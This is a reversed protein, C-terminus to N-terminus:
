ERNEAHADLAGEGKRRAIKILGRVTEAGTVSALLHRPDPVPSSPTSALVPFTTTFTSEPYKRGASTSHTAEAGNENTGHQSNVTSHRNAPQQEAVRRLGLADQAPLSLDVEVREDLLHHLRVELRCFREDLVLVLHPARACPRLTYTKTSGQHGNYGFFLSVNYKVVRPHSIHLRIKARDLQISLNHTSRRHADTHVRARCHVSPPLHLQDTSPKKVQHYGNAAEDNAAPRSGRWIRVRNSRIPASIIPRPM